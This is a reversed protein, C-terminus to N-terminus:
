VQLAPDRHERLTLFAVTAPRPIRMPYASAVRRDHPQFSCPPDADCSRSQGPTM